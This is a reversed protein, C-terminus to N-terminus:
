CIGAQGTRNTNGTLYTFTTGLVKVDGTRNMGVTTQVPGVLGFNLLNFDVQVQNGATVHVLISGAQTANTSNITFTGTTAGSGVTVLTSWGPGWIYLPTTGSPAPSWTENVIIGTLTFTINKGSELPFDIRQANYLLDVVTGSANLQAHGNTLDTILGNANLSGGLVNSTFNRYSTVNSMVLTSSKPMIATVNVTSSTRCRAGLLTGLDQGVNEFMFDTKEMDILIFQESNIRGEFIRILDVLGLFILLVVLVTISYFIARM